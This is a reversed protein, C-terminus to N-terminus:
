GYLLKVIPTAKILETSPNWYNINVGQFNVAICCGTSVTTKTRTVTGIALPDQYRAMDLQHRTKKINLIGACMVKDGVEFTHSAEFRARERISEANERAALNGGLLDTGPQLRKGIGM